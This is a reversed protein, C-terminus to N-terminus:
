LIIYKHGNQIYIGKPLQITPNDTVLRGSLDYIKNGMGTKNMKVPSLATIPIGVAEMAEHIGDMMYQNYITLNQRDVITMNNTGSCYNTDWVMPVIGREMCM